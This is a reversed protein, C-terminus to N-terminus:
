GCCGGAGKFAAPAAPAETVPAATPAHGREETRAHTLFAEWLVNQPDLVWSKESKAYCCATEGEAYAEGASADIRAYVEKLEAQTEVQIGLHNLGRPSAGRPGIAFNVRPDDLIWQVYDDKVMTPEAGFLASYFRRSTDLDDVALNVHLRKM